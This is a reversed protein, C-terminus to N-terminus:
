RERTVVQRQVSVLERKGESTSLVRGREMVRGKERGREREGERGEGREWGKERRRERGRGRQKRGKEGCHFTGPTKKIRYSVSTISDEDEAESM